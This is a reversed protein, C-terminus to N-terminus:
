SPGLPHLSLSIRTKLLGVIQLANSSSDVPTHAEARVDYSRDIVGELVLSLWVFPMKIGLLHFGSTTGRLSTLSTLARCLPNWSLTTGRVARAAGSSGGGGGIGGGGGM